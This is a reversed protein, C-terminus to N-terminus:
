WEDATESTKKWYTSLMSQRPYHARFVVTENKNKRTKGAERPLAVTDQDQLYPLNKYRSPELDIEYTGEGFSVSDVIPSAEPINHFKLRMKKGKYELVIAVMKLGCGTRVAITSIGNDNDDSSIGIMGAGYEEESIERQLIADYVPGPSYRFVRRLVLSVDNADIIKGNEDRVPYILAGSCWQASATEACGIFLLIFAATVYGWKM